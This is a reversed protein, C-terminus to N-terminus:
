PCLLPRPIRNEEREQEELDQTTWPSSSSPQSRAPLRVSRTVPAGYLRNDVTLNARAVKLMADRMNAATRHRPRNVAMM